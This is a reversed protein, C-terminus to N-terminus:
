RYPFVEVDYGAKKLTYTINDALSYAQQVADIFDNSSILLSHYGMILSTEVSNNNDFLKVSSGHAAHGGKACKLNPNDKLFFPLFQKFENETVDERTTSRTCAHCNANLPSNTSCFEKSNEYLRCCPTSGRHRLWDYYDDLWATGIQAVRTEAPNLSAIGLQNAISQSSCGASSCIMNSANINAYNIGPKIVFYVPPGVAFYEKLASFYDIMYSDKAMTINQELGIKVYPILAISTALWTFFVFIVFPRIYDNMIFPAYYRKFIRFLIGDTEETFKEENIPIETTLSTQLSNANEDLSQKRFWNWQYSHKNNENSIQICYFIDFRNQMTRKHDLTIFSIFITIQLLFDILVSMGAYLSFLRVAPMPTLAGLFFAISESVSTLLMAPGVRGVIRAIQSEIDEDPLRHDRQITQTLIFINDVSIFVLSNIKPFCKKV